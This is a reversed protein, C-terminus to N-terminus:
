NRAGDSRVGGRRAERTSGGWLPSPLSHCRRANRIRYGQAQPPPPACAHQGQIAESRECHRRQAQRVGPFARGRTGSATCRSATCRQDPVALARAKATGTRCRMVAGRETSRQARSEYSTARISRLAIRTRARRQLALGVLWSDLLTLDCDSGISCYRILAQKPVRSRGCLRIPGWICLFSKRICQNDTQQIAM